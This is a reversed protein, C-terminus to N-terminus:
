LPKPEGPAHVASKLEEIMFDLTRTDFKDDSVELLESLALVAMDALTHAFFGSSLRYSNLRPRTKEKAGALSNDDSHSKLADLVKGEYLLENRARITQLIRKPTELDGIIQEYFKCALSAFTSGM